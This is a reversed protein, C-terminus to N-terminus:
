AKSAEYDEVKEDKSHDKYDVDLDKMAEQAAAAYESEQKEKLENALMNNLM